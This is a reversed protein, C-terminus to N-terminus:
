RGLMRSVVPIIKNKVSKLEDLKNYLVYCPIYCNSSLTICATLTTQFDIMYQNETLVLADREHDRRKRFEILDSHSNAILVIGRPMRSKLTNPPTPRYGEDPINPCIHTELILQEGQRVRYILNNQIRKVRQDLEHPDWKIIQDHDTPNEGAENLLLDAFDVFPIGLNSAIGKAITSKGSGSLGVVEVTGGIVKQM